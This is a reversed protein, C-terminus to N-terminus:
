VHQMISFRAADVIGQARHDDGWGLVGSEGDGLPGAGGGKSGAEVVAAELASAFHLVDVDRGYGAILQVGVPLGSDRGLGVPISVAPLGALSAPVTMVDAAYGETAAATEDERGDGGAYGNMDVDGGGDRMMGMM